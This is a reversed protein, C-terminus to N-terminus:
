AAVALWHCADLQAVQKAAAADASALSQQKRRFLLVGAPQRYVAAADDSVCV